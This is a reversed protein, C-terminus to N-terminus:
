DTKINGQINLQIEPDLPDNTIVTITKYQRGSKGASDFTARITTSQGPSLTKDGLTVATCGCSAKTKRIMLDSKGTNTLEFDCNAKEGKKIEGFNIDKQKFSAIPARALQKKDLKSFDEQLNISVSLRTKYDRSNNISIIISEYNYGYDNKKPADYTVIVSGKQGPELEEPVFCTQLHAPQYQVSLKVPEKRTNIFSITDSIKQWTYVKGFNVNPNKFALGNLDYKYSLLLKDPNDILNGTLEAEARNNRANSYILIKYNFNEPFKSSTYTLTINGKKGPAIPERKWDAKIHSAMPTVRTLIIPQDGSNRVTFIAKQPQDDVMLNNLVIQPTEIEIAGQGFSNLTLFALCILSLFLKM